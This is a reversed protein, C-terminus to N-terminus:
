RWLPASFLAVFLYLNVIASVLITGMREAVVYRFLFNLAPVLLLLVLLQGLEVGINFAYTRALTSWNANGTLNGPM